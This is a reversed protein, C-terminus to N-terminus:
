LLEVDGLKATVNERIKDPVNVQVEKVAKRVAMSFSEINAGGHSKLVVGQLGLLSGGNYKNPDFRNFVKRLIPRCLLGALKTFINREFEQKTFNLMMKAVGESAKLAVNGM